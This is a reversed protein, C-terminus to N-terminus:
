ELVDDLGIRPFIDLATRRSANFIKVGISNCYDRAFEYSRELTDLLPAHWTEGPKRYGPHFHNREGQSVLINKSAKTVPEIYIHDVGLLYIKKFGMHVAIQLLSYTVTSGWHLGGSLDRSFFRVPSNDKEPPIWKVFQHARTRRIFPLMNSPFLKICGDIRSIENHCNTAVLSDEVSYLSPRWKTSDFALYIKNSALTFEAVLKDLDEMTLSPGNGIIFCREGYHSNRIANLFTYDGQTLTQKQLVYRPFPKSKLSKADSRSCSLWVWFHELLLLTAKVGLKFIRRIKEM